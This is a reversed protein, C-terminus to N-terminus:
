RRLLNLVDSHVISNTAIIEESGPKWPLGNEDTVMGGAERLILVGPSFDWVKGSRSIAVLARGSAVYALSRHSCGIIRVSCGAKVMIDIDELSRGPADRFSSSDPIFFGGRLDKANSVSIRKGNCFAGRGKEAWFIQRYKPFYCIGLVLEGDSELSLGCGFDYFGNLYNHTGDLPDIIWRYGNGAEKGTSEETIIGDKPFEGQIGELILNESVHDVESVFTHDAKIKTKVRRGFTKNLYTGASDIVSFALKKRYDDVM